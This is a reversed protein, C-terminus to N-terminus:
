FQLKKFWSKKEFKHDKGSIQHNVSTINRTFFTHRLYLTELLTEEFWGPKQHDTCTGYKSTTSKVREKYM